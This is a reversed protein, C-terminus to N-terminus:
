KGQYLRPTLMRYLAVLVPMTEFKTRLSAVLTRLYDKRAADYVAHHLATNYKVKHGEAAIFNITSELRKYYKGHSEIMDEIQKIIAPATVMLVKFDPPKSQLLKSLITMLPVVDRQLLLTAVFRYDCLHAYVAAPADARKTNFLHGLVSLFSDLVAKTVQDHTLWRTFANIVMKLIKSKRAEQEAKL